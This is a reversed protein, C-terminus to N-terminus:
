QKTLKLGNTATYVNQEYVMEWHDHWTGEILSTTFSFEGISGYYDTMFQDSPAKITLRTGIIIGQYSVPSVDPTYGSYSILSRNSYTYTVEIDVINENDTATIKWTQMRYEYGVYGGDIEINFKTAFSTKWTGVLDRAPGLVFLGDFVGSFYMAGFISIIIIVIPVIPGMKPKVAAKVAEQSTATM